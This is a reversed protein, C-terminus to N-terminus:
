KNNPLIGVWIWTEPRSGAYRDEPAGGGTEGVERPISCQQGAKPDQMMANPDPIIGVNREYSIQRDIEKIEGDTYGLLTNRVQYISFYKGLYPEPM